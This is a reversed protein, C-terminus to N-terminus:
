LAENNLGFALTKDDSESVPKFFTSNRFVTDMEAKSDLAGLAANVKYIRSLRRNINSSIMDFENVLHTVSKLTKTYASVDAGSGRYISKLTIQELLYKGITDFKKYIAENETYYKNGNLLTILPYM